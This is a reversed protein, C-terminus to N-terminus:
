FILNHNIRFTIRTIRGEADYLTGTCSFTNNQYKSIFEESTTYNIDYHLRKVKVDVKYEQENALNILTVIEHATINDEGIYPTFNNNFKQIKVDSITSRYSNANGALATFLSIGVGLIVLTVLVAGVILLAKSANEM